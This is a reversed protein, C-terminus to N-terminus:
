REVQGSAGLLDMYELENRGTTRVKLEHTPVSTTPDSARCLEAIAPLLRGLCRAGGATAERSEVVLGVDSALALLRVRYDARQDGAALAQAIHLLAAPLAEDGEVSLFSDAAAAPPAEM